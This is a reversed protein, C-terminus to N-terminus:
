EEVEPKEIEMPEFKLGKENETIRVIDKDIKKFEEINIKQPM